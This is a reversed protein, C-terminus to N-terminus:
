APAQAMTAHHRCVRRVGEEIGVSPEFGLLRGQRDLAPRKVLTMQAPLPTVRVLEEAAGLERRIMEALETTPIVDPHGVNIVAYERLCSAAEMARVADSIHLWGRASDRHVEIPRGRALNSAFRVMASRHEGVDEHEDYIMCLRLVVARLGAYRVEYEILEEALRKSLAYRNNPRCVTSAEDMTDAGPGYVESSSFFVCRSGTRECLQLVNAVGVVNAALALSGAQECTTRGVAGALLYVVDPRWDFAPLLDLPHTIDCVLYGPRLGPRIDAELVSYGASRLHAVLPVGLNGRAGIVLAKRSSRSSV